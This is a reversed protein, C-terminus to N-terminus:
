AAKASVKSAISCMMEVPVVKSIVELTMRDKTYDSMGESMATWLGRTQLMVHMIAAWDYYNTKTLVSFNGAPAAREVIVESRRCKSRGCRGAWWPPSHGRSRSSSREHRREPTHSHEVSTGVMARTKPAM